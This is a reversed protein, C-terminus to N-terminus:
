RTAARRRPYSPEAGFNRRESCPRWNRGAWKGWLTRSRDARPRREDEGRPRHSGGTGTQSGAATSGCTDAAASSRGAAADGGSARSAFSIPSGVPTGVPPRRPASPVTSAPPFEGPRSAPLPPVALRPLTTKLAKPVMGRRSGIQKKRPPSSSEAEGATTLQEGETGVDPPDAQHAAAQGASTTANQVPEHREEASQESSSVAGTDVNRNNDVDPGSANSTMLLSGAALLIPFRTPVGTVYLM